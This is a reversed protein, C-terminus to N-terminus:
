SDTHIRVPFENRPLFFFSFPLHVFATRSVSRMLEIFGKM